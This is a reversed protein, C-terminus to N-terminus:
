KSSLKKNEAQSSVRPGVLEIRLIPGMLQLPGEFQMCGPAADVLIL